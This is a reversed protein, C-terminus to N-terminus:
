KPPSWRGCTPCQKLVKEAKKTKRFALSVFAIFLLSFFSLVTTAISILVAPLVTDMSM